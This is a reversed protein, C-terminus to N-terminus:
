RIKELGNKTQVLYQLVYLRLVKKKKKPNLRIAMVQILNGFLGHFSSMWQKSMNSPLQKIVFAIPFILWPYRERLFGQTQNKLFGKFLSFNCTSSQEHNIINSATWLDQAEHSYMLSSRRGGARVGHTIIRPTTFCRRISPYM